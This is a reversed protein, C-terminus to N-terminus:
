ESANALGESSLKDRTCGIETRELLHEPAMRKALSPEFRALHVRIATMEELLVQM